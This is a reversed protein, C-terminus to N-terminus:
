RGEGTDASAVDRTAERVAERKLRMAQEYVLRMYELKHVLSHSHYLAVGEWLDGGAEDLAQRLIWAGGEVNACFSDRLARYAEERSARWHGAIKGLWTDNVQMPGIDVTDNANQSVSGLRGAEVSLLLVLVGAPVHHVEAAAKLCGEIMAEDAKAPTAFALAITLSALAPSALGRRGGTERDGKERIRAGM